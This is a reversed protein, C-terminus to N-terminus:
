KPFIDNLIKKEKKNKEMECSTFPQRQKKLRIKELILQSLLVLKSSPLMWVMSPSSAAYTVFPCACSIQLLFCFNLMM